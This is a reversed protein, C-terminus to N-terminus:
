PKAPPAPAPAAPTAPAAPAPGPTAPTAAPAPQAPPQPPVAAGTGFAKLEAETWPTKRAGFEKRAATVVDPPVPPSNNGFNARVFTMVAAIKKDTLMLEQGPMISAAYLKGDVTMPPANGKLIMAAFRKPDGNVYESKALPPFVMPLGMGTPQHCAVCIMMYTAKGEALQDGGGAAPAVAAASAVPGAPTAAGPSAPAAGAADPLTADAPIQLLEAETWQVKQATFEKRAAAIKAESIEPAANGWQSRIFSAVAAIKKDSLTSEWAIMNGAYTNKAGLVTIPGQVGKLIIAVLRKESGGVWESKALPPFQGPVGLGTPQHCAVCNGFVAKGQEALTQTSAAVAAGPGGPKVPIPFLVAPSSEYENYVNGSLGGHFIGFYVGAWVMAAGCVTTLWLPMPTVRASPEAHERQIAAHIETIDPTEHYDIREPAHPISPRDSPTSM